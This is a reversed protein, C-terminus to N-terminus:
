PKVDQTLRTGNRDGFYFTTGLVFTAPLDILTRSQKLFFIMQIKELM